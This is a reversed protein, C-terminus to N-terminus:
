CPDTQDYLTVFYNCPSAALGQVRQQHVVSDVQYFTVLTERGVEDKSMKIEGGHIGRLTAEVFESSLAFVAIVHETQITRTECGIHYSPMRVLCLDM